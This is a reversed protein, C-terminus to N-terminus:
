KQYDDTTPCSLGDGDLDKEYIYTVGGNSDIQKTILIGCDNLSSNDKPNELKKNNEDDKSSSKLFGYDLLTKFSITLKNDAINCYKSDIETPIIGSNECEEYFSKAAVKVNAVLTTYSKEKSLNLINVVSITGIVMIISLLMITAMLEILTFGKNNM